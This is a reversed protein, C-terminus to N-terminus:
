KSPTRLLAKRDIVLDAVSRRLEEAIEQQPRKPAATRKSPPGAQLVPSECIQELAPWMADAVSEPLVNELYELSTGRLAEDESRLARLSLQLVEADLAMSLIAFVHDIGAAGVRRIEAEAATFAVRRRPSLSADQEVIAALSTAARRRVEDDEDQALARLLGAV